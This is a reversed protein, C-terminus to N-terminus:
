QVTLEAAPSSAGGVTVVVSLQGAPVSIPVTLSIQL